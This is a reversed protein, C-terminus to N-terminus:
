SGCIEKIVSELIDLGKDLTEKEITLPNLIRLSNGFIGCPIVILGKEICTKSILKATDPDPKKNSDVFEVANMCGLGRVNVMRESELMKLRARVHIGLEEARSCLNDEEIVRLVELAATCSVPSGAYTGGLGGPHPADMINKDGSVGSIVFGGGLGKAMTVLDPKVDYYEMAFMNGTRAFGSQVEDAIFVIGENDCLKRIYQMLEDPAKYFGGEGSVPEIIIAAVKNPQISAKFLYEIAKISDKTSIGHYEIPFPVHYIYPQPLGVDTKYPAVKGTLGMTLNTRGHFGGVFSILAERKTYAKSIKVANEVAEAGSNFFISKNEKNTPAIANIKEALEIYSEYPMVQFASHVFKDIQEKVKKIIRENVHGTNVVAIGSAFDIYSNGDMDHIIANSASQIFREGAMSVIGRAVAKERRKLLELNKSM